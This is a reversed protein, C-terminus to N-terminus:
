KKIKYTKIEFPKILTSSDSTIRELLNVPHFQSAEKWDYSTSSPNYVRIIIDNDDYSKKIASIVLPGINNLSLISDQRKMTQLPDQCMVFTDGKWHFQNIKQMQYYCITIAWKKALSVLDSDNEKILIRLNFSLPKNLNSEWTAHPYADIGSARGPRYLMKRRGITSVARFLTVALQDNNGIVQYENTGKVFIAHCKTEDKLYCVSEIAEIEIPKESWCQREWVMNEKLNLNRQAVCFAGDAYSNKANINTQSIFRWRIDKGRNDLNIDFDLYQNNLNICVSIDQEILKDSDLFSPILYTYNAVISKITNNIEIHYEFHKLQQLPKQNEKSPSYDYTDGADFDAQLYFADQYLENTKLNTLIFNGDEKIAISFYDNAILKEKSFTINFHENEENVKLVCYGLACVDKINIAIKSWYQGKEDRKHQNQNLHTNEYVKFEEINIHKQYLVDFNVKQNNDDTIGFKPQNTFIWMEKEINSATLNLNFVLLENEKLGIAQAIRKKMLTNQTEILAYGSDLREIISRNTEDTNCGGQSDHAQCELLWKLAKEIITTPYEGGYKQYILALPEAEHYILYELNKSKVKIDYRSSTITKHARSYQGFRLEGTLRSLQDLNIEQLLDDFYQDYTSLVWNHDPDIKNVQELWENMYTIIPMQDSGFPLLLKNNTNKTLSKLIDLQPTIYELYQKAHQSMNALSWNTNWESTKLFAGIAVGYGWKYQNYIPIETGDIGKWVNFVGNKLHDSNVGRWHVMAKCEAKNFIQPLNANFGFSDPIYGVKMCNGLQESKRTGILLNRVISEGLVNFTDTQTYWPGVILKKNQALNQLMSYREPFYALYDDIISYQGDYNFNTFNSEKKDHAMKNIKDLNNILFIDSVNKTFYWEKDWHTQPIFYIKWKKSSNM